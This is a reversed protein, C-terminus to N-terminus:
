EEPQEDIRTITAGSHAALALCPGDSDALVAWEGHITLTLNPDEILIDEGHQGKPHTILYRPM